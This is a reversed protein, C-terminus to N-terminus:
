TISTVRLATTTKRPLDGSHAVRVDPFGLSPM